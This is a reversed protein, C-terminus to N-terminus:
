RATGNLAKRTAASLTPMNVGVDAGDSAMNNLSSSTALGYNGTAPSIFGVAALTAPFFNPQPYRTPDAGVVANYLFICGPFYQALTGTGEGTSYGIFGYTGRTFINDRFITEPFSATQEGAYSIAGDSMATNHEVTTGVIDGLFLFLWDSIGYFLNNGISISQTPAAQFGAMRVGRVANRVINNTIRINELVSQPGDAGGNFLIAVGDQGDVWSNELVNGDLIVNRANKLEFLNKVYWVGKWSLPKYFYNGRIVIDAPVVGPISAVGGGFMVNEGSAELYNNVITFPGPGNWGCIAQAEQFNSKLDSLYSNHITIKAGNLTIGRKAGAVPDGHIYMRDFEMDHPVQSLSTQVDGVVILGYSYTGPAPRVELGVFRFHHAGSAATLAPLGNPAVLAPMYRAESPKVRRGASLWGVVSSQVTIYKEGAKAPLVYSGTFVAGARLEIIDGPNASNLANQLDGGANVRIIKARPSSAASAPVAAVLLVAAALCTTLHKLMGGFYQRRQCM